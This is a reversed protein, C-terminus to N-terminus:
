IFPRLDLHRPEIGNECITPITSLIELPQAVFDRPNKKIKKVMEDREKKPAKPGIMIGYGGTANAPKVVLKAINKIVHQRHVKNECLFTEVQNLKPQEGLYYVIM